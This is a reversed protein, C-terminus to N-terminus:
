QDTQAVVEFWTLSIFGGPDNALAAFARCYDEIQEETAWKKELVYKGWPAEKWDNIMAYCAEQLSIGAGGYTDCSASANIKDFRSLSFLKKLKRGLSFDGGVNGLAKIGLDMAELIFHNDPYFLYTQMDPERAAVLGGPKVVRIMEAIAHLPDQIQCLVGNVHVVDFSHSPFPLAHIDAKAFAANTIEREQAFNKAKEVQTSSLDVGMVSGQHLIQAFDATISGPGCGCDLLHMHPKLYPLLYAAHTSARRQAFIETIKKSYGISYTKEPEISLLTKEQM